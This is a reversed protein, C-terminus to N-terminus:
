PRASLILGRREVTVSRWFSEFQNLTLRRIGPAPINPDVMLVLGRQLDLGNVVVTHGSPPIHLDVMVPLGRGLSQYISMLGRDFGDRDVEFNTRRWDAIGAQKLGQVLDVFFTGAFDLQDTGTESRVDNAMAKIRSQSVDSGFGRLIMSASACACLDKGQAVHPVSVHVPPFDQRSRVTPAPKKASESSKLIRVNWQDSIKRDKFPGIGRFWLRPFQLFNEIKEEWVHTEFQVQHDFHMTIFPRTQGGFHKQQLVPTPSLMASAIDVPVWGVGSAFFEAIVHRKGEPEERGRESKSLSEAYHGVLTRAPIGESRLTTVFLISVGGCDTGTTQCLASAVRKQKFDYQYRYSSVIKDFVERAYDIETQSATAILRNDRKWTQFANSEYDFSGDALRFLESADNSISVEDLTIDRHLRRSKKVLQREHLQLTMSVKCGIRTPSKPRLISEYKQALPRSQSSRDNFREAKDDISFDILEQGAHTPPVAVTLSYKQVAMQPFVADRSLTARVKVTPRIAISYGSEARGIFTPSQAIADAFSFVSLLGAFITPLYKSTAPM